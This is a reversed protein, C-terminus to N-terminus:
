RQGNEIDQVTSKVRDLDTKVDELKSGLDDLESLATNLQDSIDKIKISQYVSFGILIAILLNYM